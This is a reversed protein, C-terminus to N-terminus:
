NITLTAQASGTQRTRDSEFRASVTYSGPTATQLDTVCDNRVGPTAPLTCSAPSLSEGGQGTPTVSFSVTGSPEPASTLGAPPSVVATCGITIQQGQDVHQIQGHTPHACSISMRPQAPLEVLNGDHANVGGETIFVDGSPDVAVDSPSALGSAITTRAGKPGAEIVSQTSEDVIFADDAANVAIGMLGGLHAVVM